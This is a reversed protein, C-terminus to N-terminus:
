IMAWDTFRWTEPAAPGPTKVTKVRAKAPTQAPQAMPRTRETSLDLMARAPPKAPATTKPALLPTM